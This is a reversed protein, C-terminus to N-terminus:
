IRRGATQYAASTDNATGWRLTAILVRSVAFARTLGPAFIVFLQNMALPCVWSPKPAPQASKMVGFRHEPGYAGALQCYRGCRVLRQERRHSELKGFCAALARMFGVSTVIWTTPRRTVRGAAQRSAATGCALARRLPRRPECRSDDNLALRVFRCIHVRETPRLNQVARLSRPPMRQNIVRLQSDRTGM